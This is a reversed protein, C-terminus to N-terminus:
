IIKRGLVKEIAQLMEQGIAGSKKLEQLLLPKTVKEGMLEFWGQPPNATYSKLGSKKQKEVEEDINLSVQAQIATMSNGLEEMAILKIDDPLSDWKQKNVVIMCFLHSMGINHAYPAVEMIKASTISDFGSMVGKVVGRQLAAYTEPWEIPVPVGKCAEVIMSYVMAQARIKRKGLDMINEVKDTIVFETGVYPQYALIHVNRKHLERQLIPYVAEFVLAKERQDRAIFPVNIIGFPTFDGAHYDGQALCMELQGESVARLQDPGKIPLAGNPHTQIDLVGNTRSKIRDFAQQTHADSFTTLNGRFMIYNWKQPKMDVQKGTQALAAIPTLSFVFVVTVVLIRFMNKWLGSM